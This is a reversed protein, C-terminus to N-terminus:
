DKLNNKKYLPCPKLDEFYISYIWKSHKCIQPINISFVKMLVFSDIMLIGALRSGVPIKIISEDPNIIKKNEQGDWDIDIEIYVTAVIGNLGNGNSGM